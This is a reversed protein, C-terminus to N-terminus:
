EHSESTRLYDRKNTVSSAHFRSTHLLLTSDGWNKGFSMEVVNFEHYGIKAFLTTETRRTCKYMNFEM